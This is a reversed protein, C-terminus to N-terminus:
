GPRGSARRSSAEQLEPQLGQELEQLLLVPVLVAQVTPSSWGVPEWRLQCRWHPGPKPEQWEVGSSPLIGGPGTFLWVGAADRLQM